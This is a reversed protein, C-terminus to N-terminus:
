SVFASDIFECLRRHLKPGIPQWGHRLVLPFDANPATPGYIACYAYQSAFMEGPTDHTAESLWPTSPPFHFAWRGLWARDADTLYLVDFEHGLEHYFIFERESRLYYRTWYIPATFMRPNTLSTEICAYAGMGCPLETRPEEVFTLSAEPTPAKSADAWAQLVPPGNVLMAQASGGCIIGWAAAVLLLLRAPRM